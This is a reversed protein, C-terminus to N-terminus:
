KLIAGAIDCWHAFANSRSLSPVTGNTFWIPTVDKPFAPDDLVEPLDDIFHTLQLTAIREIKDARTGEFFVEDRCLGFGDEDFFGRAQMWSLAAERLNLRSEDFHGYETKHSVISIRHGQARCLRLFAAFGEFMVADSIRKGYVYGQLSQWTDEGNPKLRLAERIAEKGGRFKEDVLGREKAATLFVDDYDVITNDFDIGIWKM